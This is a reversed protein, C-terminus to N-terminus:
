GWEKCSYLGNDMEMMFRAQDKTYGQAQYKNITMYNKINAYDRGWKIIRSFPRQLWLQSKQLRRSILGCIARLFNKLKDKTKLKVVLHIHNGVNQLSYVRIFHKRAQAEILKEIRRDYHKLCRMRAKIVVHMSAKASFPRATVAHSNKLLDGGFASKTSEKFLKQQNM